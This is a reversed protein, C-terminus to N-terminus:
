RLALVLLAVLGVASAMATAAWLLRSARDAEETLVMGTRRPFELAGGQVLLVARVPERRSHTIM